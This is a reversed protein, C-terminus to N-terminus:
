GSVLVVSYILQIEIKFFMRSISPQLPSEVFLTFTTLAM